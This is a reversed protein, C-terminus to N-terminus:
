SVNLVSFDNTVFSTALAAFAIVVFVFQGAALPRASAMLTRNGLAAGTLPLGAQLAALVLALIQAFQGLEPIM